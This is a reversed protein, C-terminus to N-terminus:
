RAFLFSAFSETEIYRSAFVQLYAFRLVKATKEEYEESLRRFANASGRESLTSIFTALLVSIGIGVTEIIDGNWFVFILNVALAFLLIKIIPDGLNEIFARLFSKEKKKSLANDGYKERSALIQEESLGRETIRAKQRQKEATRM